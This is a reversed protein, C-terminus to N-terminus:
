IARRPQKLGGEMYCQQRVWGLWPTQCKPLHGRPQCKQQTHGGRGGGGGWAPGLCVAHGGKEWGRVTPSM